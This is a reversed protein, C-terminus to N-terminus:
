YTEVPRVGRLRDCAADYEAWAANHQNEAKLWDCDGNRICAINGTGVQDCCQQTRPEDLKKVSFEKRATVAVELEYNLCSVKDVLAKLVDGTGYTEYSGCKVCEVETDGDADVFPKFGHQSGCDACAWDPKNGLLNDIKELYAIEPVVSSDFESAGPPFRKKLEQTLAEFRARASAPGQNRADRYAIQKELLGLLNCANDNGALQQKLQSFSHVIERSLDDQHPM